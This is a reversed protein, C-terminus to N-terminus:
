GGPSCLTISYSSEKATAQLCSSIRDNTNNPEHGLSTSSEDRMSFMFSNKLGMGRTVKSRIKWKKKKQHNQKLRM